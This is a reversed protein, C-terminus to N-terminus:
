LFDNMKEKIRFIFHITKDSIYFSIECSIHESFHNKIKENEENTFFNFLNISFGYYDVYNVYVLPNSVIKFLGIKNRIDNNSNRTDNCYSKIQHKIISNNNFKDYKGLLNKIIECDIIDENEIGFDIKNLDILFLKNKPYNFNEYIYVNKREVYNNIISIQIQSMIGADFHEYFLKFFLKKSEKIYNQATHEKSNRNKGNSIKQLEYEFESKTIPKNNEFSM